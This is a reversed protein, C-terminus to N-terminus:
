VRLMDGHMWRGDVSCGHVVPALSYLMGMLNSMCV